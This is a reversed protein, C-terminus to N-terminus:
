KYLDNIEFVYKLITSFNLAASRAAWFRRVKGFIKLKDRSNWDKNEGFLYIYGPRGAL